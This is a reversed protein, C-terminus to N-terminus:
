AIPLALVKQPLSLRGNTPCCSNFASPRQKRMELSQVGVQPNCRLPMLQRPRFRCRLLGCHQQPASSDTSKPTFALFHKRPMVHGLPHLHELLTTKKPSCTMHATACADLNSWCLNATMKCFMPSYCIRKLSGHCGVKWAMSTAATPWAIGINAVGRNPPLWRDRETWSRMM